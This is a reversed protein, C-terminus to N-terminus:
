LPHCTLLRNQFSLLKNQSKEAIKQLNQRLQELYDRDIMGLGENKAIFVEVHM